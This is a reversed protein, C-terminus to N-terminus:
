FRKKISLKFQDFNKFLDTNYSKLQHNTVSSFGICKLFKVISLNQKQFHAVDYNKLKTDINSWIQPHSNNSRFYNSILPGHYDSIVGGVWELVSLNFVKRISFPLIAILRNDKKIVVVQLLINYLPKGITDYWNKIWDFSQFPSHLSQKEIKSWLKYLKNNLGEFVEIEYDDVKKM